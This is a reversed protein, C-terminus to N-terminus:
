KHPLVPVSGWKGWKLEVKLHFHLLANPGDWHVLRVITLHFGWM